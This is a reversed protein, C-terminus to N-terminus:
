PRWFPDCDGAPCTYPESGSESFVALWCATGLAYLIIM